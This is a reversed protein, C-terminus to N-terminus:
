RNTPFVACEQQKRYADLKMGATDNKIKDLETQSDSVDKQTILSQSQLLQSYLESPGRIENVTKAATSSAQIDLLIKSKADADKAEELLKAALPTVDRNLISNIENVSYQGSSRQSSTLSQNALKNEYCMVANEYTSKIDLVIQLAEDKNNKYARTNSLYGEINPLLNQSISSAAEPNEQIIQNIYANPDGAGSGSVTGLGKTLVQTVLQSFLANVIENLEDALELERLPGGLSSELSGAIVSGPTQVECNRQRDVEQQAYYAEESGSEANALEQKAYYEEESGSDTCKRWSLFGRGQNIEERRQLQLNAVRLSLESEAQIYAGYVNNQPETTLSVFAPWRGQSFDGATFGNISAGEIANKSNQIITGLTCTYRQRNNPHYRFALAIRLDISFPSCLDVLPGGTMSLFRGTEQDALDLFFSSPNTVFSPSGEFGTNIWNVVSQTLSRIIQKAFAGAIGDLVFEKMTDSYANFALQTTNAAIIGQWVLSPGVEAVAWQAEAKKTPLFYLSSSLMSAILLTGLFNLSKKKM